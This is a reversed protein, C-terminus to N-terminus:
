PIPIDFTRVLFVAMQDRAVAFDPCYNGGGCGSTIGETALREIWDVFLHGPGVDAFMTGMGAPPTYGSGYETILLFKAMQARSVPLDPCYNGGGCGSTIGENALQEIWDVFPHSIPVDGFMTGTGAPPVYGADHEAVLLFKAMQARSVPLTPCYNGGGCGSTIGAAAIGEVYEWAWYGYPVDAFTQCAASTVTLTDTTEDTLSGTDRVQLRVTHTAATLYRHEATKTTTWDTDYTGDNEWDWRVELAHVPDEVDTSSSANFDFVTCRDGSTVSVSFAATPPTNCVGVGVPSSFESSDGTADTATVTVNPGTVSGSWSFAGTSPDATTSGEYIAGEDNNDSFIEVVCSNCATGSVGFCTAGLIMPTPIDNNGHDILNIGADFNTHISNQTLTANDSAFGEVNVGDGGNHAIENESIHNDDSGFVYIGHAFNGIGSGGFVDPGIRNNSIVNDHSPGGNDMLVIGHDDNGSILNGDAYSAGGVTNNAADEDILIGSMGNGLDSLGSVDPGIYNGSVVIYEVGSGAIEIGYDDNGSITNREGTSDGGINNHAANFGFGVGNGTNGLKASGSADTGILNGTIVNYETGTGTLKVGDDLNASIVNQEGITDGGITNHHAGNWLEVGYDANGLAITGTADTGIYNGVVLNQTSNSTAIYVGSQDNGSIVNRAGATDGGVTNNSGQISVGDELNGLDASGSIDLGIYNGVITNSHQIFVGCKDNASIVNREGAVTGGVTNLSADSGIWVGCWGNGLDSSGSADTGILNGIVKNGTTGLEAIFIGEMVNGSIVNREGVTDGGLTNDKAELGIVIGRQNPLASTGLVDTGIYNGSVVNGTAYSGSISIGSSDNGSIVNREDATDGGIINGPANGIDVGRSVNALALTGTADTGILNGAIVNGSTSAESLQVGHTQNGSIVNGAGSVEGGIMNNNAGGALMIGAYGNGLSNSGSADLGIYNGAIINEAPSAEFKIGYQDNGSIINRAAASVGGITNDHTDTYLRIGHRGNGLDVTGTVDTGIYNGLVTNWATGSGGLNLGDNINGSIVNREAVTSGGITNNTAGSALLVGISNGLPAAGSADTGILNGSITNYSTDSQDLNVGQYANGSILNGEGTAGGGVTNRQAQATIEVGNEGNPLASSGSVDTGIYNGSIENWATGSGHLRIGDYTNGSILNREAETNGGIVNTQAGENICVGYQNPVAAIGAPDTGIYNGEAVNFTAGSGGFRIGCSDYNNIALGKILNNSSLVILGIGESISSGDIQIVITAPTGGSAPSAGSQSYGDITTDGGSLGPLTSVPQITCIGSTCGPDGSPIAFNITDAGPSNNAALIAERLSIYGDPGPNAILNAVSTTDGDNVDTTSDVTVTAAMAPNGGVFFAFLLALFLLANRLTQRKM